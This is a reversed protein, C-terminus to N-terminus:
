FIGLFKPRARKQATRHLALCERYIHDVAPAKENAKQLQGTQELFGLMWPTADDQGDPLYAAVPLDAPETPALLSKPILRDCEPVSPTIVTHACGASLVALLTMATARLPPSSKM